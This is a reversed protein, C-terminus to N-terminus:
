GIRRVIFAAASVQFLVVMFGTTLGNSFSAGVMILLFLNGMVTGPLISWSVGLTVKVAEWWGQLYSAVASGLIAGGLIALAFVSTVPLNRLVTEPLVLCSAIGVPLAAYTVARVFSFPPRYNLWARTCLIGSIVLSEVVFILTLYTRWQGNPEAAIGILDVYELSAIATKFNDFFLVVLTVILIIPAVDSTTQLLSSDKVPQVPKTSTQPSFLSMAFLFFTVLVLTIPNEFFEVLASASDDGAWSFGKALLTLNVILLYSAFNDGGIAMKLEDFSFLRQSALMSVRHQYLAQGCMVCGAIAIIAPWWSKPPITTFIVLAIYGTAAAFLFYRM